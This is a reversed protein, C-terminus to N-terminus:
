NFPSRKCTGSKKKAGSGRLRLYTQSTLNKKKHDTLGLKKEMNVYCNVNILLEKM